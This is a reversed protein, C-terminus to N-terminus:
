DCSQSRAWGNNSPLPNSTDACFQDYEDFTVAYQGLSFPHDLRVLHLTAEESGEDLALTPAEMQFDGAPNM